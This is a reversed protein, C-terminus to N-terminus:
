YYKELVENGDSSSTSFFLWCTKQFNLLKTYRSHFHFDKTGENFASHGGDYVICSANM